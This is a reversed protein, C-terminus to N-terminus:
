KQFIATCINRFSLNTLKILKVTKKINFTKFFYKIINVVLRRINKKLLWDREVNSLGHPLNKLADKFYLYGNYIYSYPNNLEQEGHVRYEMFTYPILVISSYCCAKLNFFMDGAAEYADPYGGIDLLFQRKLITSGPGIGLFPFEFYNKRIAEKGELLFPVPQDGRYYCMGFSTNPFQTMTKVLRSIGDPHITDDSDVFVVYLGNAYSIAKNRNPFQKINTENIYLKTRCDKETYKKAITVTNDKSCDDVIILEFNQYDSALVSEIAEAIYKERNYATMLVSVMPYTSVLM